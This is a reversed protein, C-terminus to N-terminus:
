QLPKPINDGIAHFGTEDAVYQVDIFTGDPQQYKYSGRYVPVKVLKKKGDEDMTTVEKIFVGEEREIGNGSTYRLM